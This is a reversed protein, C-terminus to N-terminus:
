RGDSVLSVALRTRSLSEVRLLEGAPRGDELKPRSETAIRHPTNARWPLVHIELSALEAPSLRWLPVDFPQGNYFNDLM